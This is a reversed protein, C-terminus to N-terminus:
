NEQNIPVSLYQNGHIKWALPRGYAPGSMEPTYLHAYVLLFTYGLYNLVFFLCLDLIFLDYFGHLRFMDM